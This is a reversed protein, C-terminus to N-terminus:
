RGIRVSRSGLKTEGRGADRHGLPQLYVRPRRSERGVADRGLEKPRLSVNSPAARHLIGAFKNQPLPHATKRVPDSPQEAWTLVPKPLTRTSSCSRPSERVKATRSRKSSRTISVIPLGFRIM